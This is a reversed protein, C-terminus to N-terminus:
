SKAELDMGCVPCKGPKDYVKGEECDMPCAYSAAHVATSDVSTSVEKTANEKNENGKCALLGLMAISAFYILRKM